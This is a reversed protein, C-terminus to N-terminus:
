ARTQQRMKAGTFTVILLFEGKNLGGPRDLSRQRRVRNPRDHIANAAAATTRRWGKPRLSLAFFRVLAGVPVHSPPRGRTGVGGAPCPPPRMKRLGVRSAAGM